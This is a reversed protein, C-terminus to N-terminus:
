ETRAVTCGNTRIDPNAPANVSIGATDTPACSNGSVRGSSSDGYVINALTILEFRNDVVSPSSAGTMQLGIDLGAVVNGRFEGAATDRYIAGYRGIREIRNSLIRPRASEGVQIAIEGNSRMTNDVFTAASSGTFVAGAETSNTITNTDLEPSATDSVQVAVTQRDLANRTATGTTQDRFVLGVGNGTLRNDNVQVSSSGAAVVGAAGAGDVRNGSVDGATQDAFLVGVEVSDRIDNDAVSVNSTGGVQVGIRRGTITNGTASGTSAGAFSVGVSGANSITNSEVDAHAADVVQVGIEVASDVQNDRITGTAREGYSIAAARSVWVANDIADVTADGSVQVGISHDVIGNRRADLRVQDTVLLGVDHVRITNDTLVPSSSGTAQVGVQGNDEVTTTTMTPTASGDIAVGGARNSAIHSGSVSPSSADGIQVGVQNREVSTDTMAGGAEDAYCVGCSGNDVVSLGTLAPRATGTVLVGAGGNGSIETRQVSLVGRRETETRTPFGPLDTFAFALGHGGGDGSGDDVGGRIVADAITVPGQIALLVSANEDGGHELTLDSMTFSGPGVFALAAGAATSTLTTADRGAGVFHVDMDVIISESFRHTGAAFRVTSGPALRALLDPLSEGVALTVTIPVENRPVTSVPVPAPPGAFPGDGRLSAAIARGVEGDGAIQAIAATLQEEVGVPDCGNDVAAQAIQIAATQAEDVSPPPDIANWDEITFNQYRDM